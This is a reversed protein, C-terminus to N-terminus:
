CVDQSSVLLGDDNYHLQIDSPIGFDTVVVGNALAQYIASIEPYLDTTSWQALPQRLLEAFQANESPPQNLPTSATLAAVSQHRNGDRASMEAPSGPTSKPTSTSILPLTLSPPAPEGGNSSTSRLGASKNGGADDGDPAPIEVTLSLLNEIGGPSETTASLPHGDVTCTSQGFGRSCKARHAQPFPSIRTEVSYDREAVSAVVEGNPRRVRSYKLTSQQGPFTCAVFPTRQSSALRMSLHPAPESLLEALQQNNELLSKAKADLAKLSSRVAVARKQEHFLFTRSRFLKNAEEAALQQISADGEFAITVVQVSAQYLMEFFVLEDSAFEFAQQRKVRAIPTKLGFGYSGTNKDNKSVSMEHPNVRIKYELVNHCNYRMVLSSYCCSLAEFAMRAKEHARAFDRGSKGTEREMYQRRRGELRFISCFYLILLSFFKTSLCSAVPDLLDTYFHQFAFQQKLKSPMRHYVVRVADRVFFQENGNGDEFGASPM